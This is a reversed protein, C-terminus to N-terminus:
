YQKPFEFSRKPSTLKAQQMHRKQNDKKFFCDPTSFFALTNKPSWQSHFHYLNYGKAIYHTQFALLLSFM